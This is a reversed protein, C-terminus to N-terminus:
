RRQPNDEKSDDTRQARRASDTKAAGSHEQLRNRDTPLRVLYSALWTILLSIVALIGLFLIIKHAAHEAWDIKEGAFFGVGVFLMVQLAVSLGDVFLFRKWPYHAAGAAIYAVARFGFTFRALFLTWGGRVAFTKRYAELRHAGGIRKLFAAVRPRTFFWHSVAFLFADGAVIALYWVILSAAPPTVRKFIAYGGGMLIPNEPLPLGTGGLFLTLTIAWFVSEMKM